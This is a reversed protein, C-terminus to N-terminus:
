GGGNPLGRRRRRGRGGPEADRRRSPSTSGSCTPRYRARHPEPLGELGRGRPHRHPLDGRPRSTGQHRGRSEPVGGPLACQAALRARPAGCRCRVAQRQAAAARELLGKGRAPRAGRQRTPQRPALGPGLARVRSRDGGSSGLGPGAPPQRHDLHRRLRADGDPELAQAGGHAIERDAGAPRHQAREGRRHQQHGESRGLAPLGFTAHLQEIPRLDGLDFISGLDVFFAEAAPRRLGEVPASPTSREAALAAYNPTSLPGINCPPCRLSEGLPRRAAREVKRM